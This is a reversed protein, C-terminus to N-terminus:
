LAIGSFIHQIKFDATGEKYQPNNSFNWKERRPYEHPFQIPFNVYSKKELLWRIILTIEIIKIRTVLVGCMGNHYITKM